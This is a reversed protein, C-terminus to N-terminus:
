RMKMIIGQFVRREDNVRTDGQGLTIDERPEAFLEMNIPLYSLAYTTEDGGLAGGGYQGEGGVAVREGKLGSQYLSLLARYVGGESNGLAEKSPPMNPVRGEDESTVLMLSSNDPDDPNQYETWFYVVYPEAPNSVWRYVESFRKTRLTTEMQAVCDAARQQHRIQTINATIAGLLGIMSAISVAIVGVALMVEVLTFGKKNKLFTKKM